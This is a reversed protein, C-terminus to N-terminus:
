SGERWRDLFGIATEPRRCCCRGRLTGELSGLFYREETPSPLGWSVKKTRPQRQLNSRGNIIVGEGRFTINCPPPPVGAKPSDVEEDGDGDGDTSSDTKGDYGPM